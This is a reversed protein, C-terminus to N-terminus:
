RLVVADFREIWAERGADIRAPAMAVPVDPLVAHTAFVDPLAVDERVPFVFMTLPLDAQFAPSLLAAFAVLGLFKFLWGIRRPPVTATLTLPLPERARPRTTASSVGDDM